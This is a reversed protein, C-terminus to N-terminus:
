YIEATEATEETEETEATAEPTTGPAPRCRSDFVLVLATVAALIVVAAAVILIKRSNAM